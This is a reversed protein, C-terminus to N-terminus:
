ENTKRGLAYLATVAVDGMHQRAMEEAADKTKKPAYANGFEFGKSHMLGWAVPELAKIRELEAKLEAVEDVLKENTALLEQREADAENLLHKIEALHDAADHDHSIGRWRANGYAAIAQWLAETDMM